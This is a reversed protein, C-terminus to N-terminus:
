TSSQQSESAPGDRTAALPMARHDEIPLNLHRSVYWQKRLTTEGLKHSERESLGPPGPHHPCQAATVSKKSGEHEQCDSATRLGEAYRRREADRVAHRAP